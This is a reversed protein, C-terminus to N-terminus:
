LFVSSYVDRYHFVYNFLDFWLSCDQLSRKLIVYSTAFLETWVTDIVSNTNPYMFPQKHSLTRMEIM